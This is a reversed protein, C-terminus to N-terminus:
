NMRPKPPQHLKKAKKVFTKYQDWLDSIKGITDLWIARDEPTLNAYLEHQYKDSVSKNPRNAIFNEFSNQAQEWEVKHDFPMGDSKLIKVGRSEKAIALLDKPQM